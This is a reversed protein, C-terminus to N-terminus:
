GKKQRSPRSAQIEAWETPTLGRRAADKRFADDILIGHASDPQKPNGGPLGSAGTGAVGAAGNGSAAQAKLWARDKAFPEFAEKFGEIKGDTLKLSTRPFLAMADRLVKPNVEAQLLEIQLAADMAISHKEQQLQELRVKQEALLKEHDGRKRAEEDTKDKEARVRQEEKAEFERLKIRTQAAEQRADHLASRLQEPSLEQSTSGTSGQGTGTGAGALPTTSTSGQNQGVGMGM